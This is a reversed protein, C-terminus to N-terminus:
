ILIFSLIVFIPKKFRVSVHTKDLNLVDICM